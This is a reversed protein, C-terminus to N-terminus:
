LAEAAGKRLMQSGGLSLEQKWQVTGKKRDVAWLQISDGETTTLFIQDKWIIPTSGSRGPMPLKWAVNEEPSWKVPLNTEASIGNLAPGRWQPWWRADKEASQLAPVMLLLLIAVFAPFIALRHRM